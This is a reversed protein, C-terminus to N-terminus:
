ANTLSKPPDGPDLVLSMERIKADIKELVATPVVDREPLNWWHDNASWVGSLAFYSILLEVDNAM